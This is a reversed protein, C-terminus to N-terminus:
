IDKSLQEYARRVDWTIDFDLFDYPIQISGYIVHISSSISSGIYIFILITEGELLKYIDQFDLILQSPKCLDQWIVARYEYNICKAMKWAHEVQSTM